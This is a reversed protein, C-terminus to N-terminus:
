ATALKGTEESPKFEDGEGACVRPRGISAYTFGCTRMEEVRYINRLDILVPAAMVGKLTDPDLARFEEWETVIIVAHAATAWDYPEECFTVSPLTARAAEMGAPDYARVHAGFDQLAMILPIAPTERMDDTNPK